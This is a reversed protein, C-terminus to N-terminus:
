AADAGHVSSDHEAARAEAERMIREYDSTDGDRIRGPNDDSSEKRQWESEDDLYRGQNFWTSPHPTFKGRQGAPARAFLRVRERLWDAVDPPPWLVEGEPREDGNTLRKLAQDISTLAKSKGVKRPYELYISELQVSRGGKPPNPPNKKNKDERIKEERTGMKDAHSASTKRVRRKREAEMSRRKASRDMHEGFEPIVLSQQEVILWGVSECARAFGDLNVERDIVEPTYGDLRGDETHADAISWMRFLAGVVPCRDADCASAIRVVKPHTWLDTKMKIWSM